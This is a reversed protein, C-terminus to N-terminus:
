VIKYMTRFYEDTLPVGDETASRFAPELFDHLEGYNECLGRLMDRLNANDVGSLFAKFHEKKDIRDLTVTGAKFRRKFQPIGPYNYSYREMKDLKGRLEETGILVFGCYENIADYIGKCLGIMGHSLNEAEDIIVLPRGGKLHIEKLKDAVAKMRLAKRHQFEISLGMLRGLDNLIDHIKHMNSVTIRFTNIPNAEIFRNVAYTKGCGTQGIIMKAVGREKADELASIVDVFQPTQVTRWYSAVLSMGIAKAAKQYQAEGIPSFIGEKSKHEHKGNFWDSIYTAGIESFRAFDAQSMKKSKVFRKVATVIQDKQENTM